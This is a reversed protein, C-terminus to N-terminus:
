RGRTLEQQILSDDVDVPITYPENKPPKRLFSPRPRPIRACEWIEVSCCQQEAPTLEEIHRAFYDNLPATADLM